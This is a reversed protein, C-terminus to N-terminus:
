WPAEWAEWTRKEGPALPTENFLHGGPENKGEAFFSGKDGGGRLKAFRLRGLPLRRLASM